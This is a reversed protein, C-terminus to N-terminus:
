ANAQKEALPGILPLVFKEKNYAKYMLFLWLGLAALVAVGHLVAAVIWGLVPIMALITGIVTLVIFVAFVACWMFISQFAHFRITRNNKYPELVLFLVGTLIGLLYCLASALNEEMGASQVMPAAPPPVYTGGGQGMDPMPSGCKACFKGQSDAGCNPCFAM